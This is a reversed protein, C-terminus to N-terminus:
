GQHRPSRELESKPRLTGKEFSVSFRISWGSRKSDCAQRRPLDFKRVSAELVSKLMFFDEESRWPM